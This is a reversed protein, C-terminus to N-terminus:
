GRKFEILDGSGLIKTQKLGLLKAWRIGNTFDSRIISKVTFAGEAEIRELTRLVSRHIKFFQKPRIHKSLAAWNLAEDESVMSTGVCAIVTDGEYFTWSLPGELVRAQEISLVGLDNVQADQVEIYQFHEGVFPTVEM